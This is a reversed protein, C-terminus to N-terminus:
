PAWPHSNWVLSCQFRLCGSSSVWQIPHLSAVDWNMWWVAMQNVSTSFASLSLYSYFNQEVFSIICCPGLSAWTAERSDLPGKSKKQNKQDWLNGLNEIHEELYGCYCWVKIKYISQRFNEEKWSYLYLPGFPLCEM